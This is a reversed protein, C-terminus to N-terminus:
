YNIYCNPLKRKLADIKDQSIPNGRLGAYTLNTLGYLSSVDNINNEWISLTKLNKLESLSSIDSIQNTYLYLIELDKLSSLPRIDRIQNSILSLETLKNLNYIFSIDTIQSSYLQLASLNKYESLFSFDSIQSSTLILESLNKLELIHSVDYMAIDSVHLSTLNKLERIGSYDTPENGGVDLVELNKLESLPSIDTIQNYGLDLDQLNVLKSLPSIDTIQNFGLYLDQLNVLKSLPSIDTIQNINLQLERLNVLKSLPSVDAIENGTLDLRRLNIMLKLDTLDSDSLNKGYLELSELATSYRQGKIVIFEEPTESPEAIPSPSAVGAAPISSNANDTPILTGTPLPADTARAVPTIGNVVFVVISAFCMLIALLIVAIPKADRKKPVPKEFVLNISRNSSLTGTLESSPKLKATMGYEDTAGLAGLGDTHPIEPERVPHKPADSVASKAQAYGELAARMETANAYRRSPEYSCAKLIIRSMEPSAEAPPALPTGDMRKEFAAERDGPLLSTAYMPIFPIRGNNLIRYLVIGLSYQDVTAGYKQGKFVEPAMYSYTGKKSMGSLTKEIKRAIGFDGLKYDGDASVFINEPKIDRHIINYREM